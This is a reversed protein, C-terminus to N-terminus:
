AGARVPRQRELTFVTYPLEDLEQGKSKESKIAMGKFQSASYVREYKPQM